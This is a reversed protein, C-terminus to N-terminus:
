VKSYKIVLDLHDKLLEIEGSSIIPRVKGKNERAIDLLKELQQIITCLQEIAVDDKAVNMIDM